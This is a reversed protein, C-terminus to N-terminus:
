EGRRVTEGGGTDEYYRLNVERIGFPIFAYDDTWTDEDRIDPTVFDEFGLRGKFTSLGVFYNEGAIHHHPGLLNRNNGVLRLQVNNEGPLLWDTIDQEFPPCFLDAGRSNIELRILAGHHRRVSLCVRKGMEPKKLTFKYMADGRYFWLGQATLDGCHKPTARKMSFIADAISYHDIRDSIKGDAQLDFCGRIYINEPEIPYFFRNRETEFVEDINVNREPKPIHYRLSIRNDGTHVWPTITYEGICKDIWWGERAKEVPRGNIEICDCHADELALTLKEELVAADSCRFHYELVVDLEEAAQEVERYLKDVLRIVPMQHSFPSGNISYAAHDITLCNRHCLEVRMDSVQKEALLTTGIVSVREGTELLLNEKSAVTLLVQTRGRGDSFSPLATREGNEPAIRYLGCEGPVSLVVKRQASVVGHWVHIRFGGGPLQRTHVSFGTSIKLDDQNRIEVTRPYNLYCILKELLERRNQVDYAPLQSIEHNPECDVFGPRDNVFVVMGGQISFRKLMDWTGGDLDDGQAVFVLDYNSRGLQIRGNEVRGYKALLQEDGLEFDVQIDLLNEALMRMQSSYQKIKTQDGMPCAYECMISSTPAIVLTHVDREGETMCANLGNIWDHLSPFSDWWLEQYSFFAPYDRKRIGSITYAALHFCPKTVGLSAQWGWIWCIQSFPIGWGSCGFSESLVQGNGVQNSVSAVQKMLMASALRNGLHDIGPLQMYQYHSMVGGCSAMQACMGDEAAFHGTMMLHNQECWDAIQRTFSHRFLRNVTMWFAKRFRRFGEGQEVLLWLSDLLDRGCHERFYAPLLQGWPFGDIFLQPEDTFIGKITTGFYEGFRERYREHTFHIFQKVADPYMLDAYHTDVTYYFFLDGDMGEDASIRYYEHPNRRRFVAVTHADAAKKAEYGFSLKKFCYEEGLAPVMGGAFGSPWGDEDYLWVELGRQKAEDIAVSCAALWEDQMYPITLGARAHIIFGDFRKQSFQEIQRRIEAERM